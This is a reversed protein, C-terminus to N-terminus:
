RNPYGVHSPRQGPEGRHGISWHRGAVIERFKALDAGALFAAGVLGVVDLWDGKVHDVLQRSVRMIEIRSRQDVQLLLDAVKKNRPGKEAMVHVVADSWLTPDM